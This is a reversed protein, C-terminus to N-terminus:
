RSASLTWFKGSIKWATYDVQWHFYEASVYPYREEALLDKTVEEEIRAFRAWLAKGIGATKQEAAAVVDERRKKEEASLGERMMM